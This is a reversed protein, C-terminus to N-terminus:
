FYYNVIVPQKTLGYTKGLLVVIWSYADILPSRREPNGTGSQHIVPYRGKFGTQRRKPLPFLSKKIASYVFYVRLFNYSRTKPRPNM